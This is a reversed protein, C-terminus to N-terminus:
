SGERIKEEEDHPSSVGCFNTFEKLLKQLYTTRHLLPFSYTMGTTSKKIYEALEHPRPRPEKASICTVPQNIYLEIFYAKFPECDFYLTQPLKTSKLAEILEESEISRIYINAKCRRIADEIDLSMVNKSTDVTDHLIFNQINPNTFQQVFTDVHCETSHVPFDIDISNCSMCLQNLYVKTQIPINVLGDAMYRNIYLSQLNSFGTMDMMFPAANFHICRVRYKHRDELHFSRHNCELNEIPVDPHVIDLLKNLTSHEIANHITWGNLDAGTDKLVFLIDECADKNTINLHLPRGLELIEPTLFDILIENTAHNKVHWLSFRNPPNQLHLM